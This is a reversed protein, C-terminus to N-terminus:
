AQIELFEGKSQQSGLVSGIFTSPSDSLTQLLFGIEANPKLFASLLEGLKRNSAEMQDETQSEKISRVAEEVQNLVSAPNRKEENAIEDVTSGGLLSNLIQDKVEQAARAGLDPRLLGVVSTSIQETLGALNQVMAPDALEAIARNFIGNGDDRGTRNQVTGHLEERLVNQFQDPSSFPGQATTAAFAERYLAQAATESIGLEGSLRTVAGTEITDLMENSVGYPSLLSGNLGYAAASNALFSADDTSFGVGKLENLVSDRFERQTEFSDGARNIAGELVTQLLNRSTSIGSEDAALQAKLESLEGDFMLSRNMASSLMTEALTTDTEFLNNTISNAANSPDASLTFAASLFNIGLDARILSAATNALQQAQPQELGADRLANVIESRLASFSTDSGRQIVNNITDNILGGAAASSFASNLVLQDTLNQKLALISFPNDLVDRLDSGATLAVLAQSVPIGAANAFLQAVLEPMGITRGFHAMAVSLLSLNMTASVANTFAAMAGLSLDGFTQEMKTARSLSITADVLNALASEILQSDSSSLANQLEEEAQRATEATQQLNLRASLPLSNFEGNVINRGVGGDVVGLVQNTLALSLGIGVAPSSAALHGIASAIYRLSPLPTLLSSNQLLQLATFELRSFQRGSIPFSANKAISSFIASSLVLELNKSHLGLSFSALGIGGGFVNVSDLFVERAQEIYSNPVIIDIGQEKFFAKAEDRAAEALDIARNFSAAFAIASLVQPLWIQRLVQTNSSEQIVPEEIQPLPNIDGPDPSAAIPLIFTSAPPSFVTPLSTRLQDEYTLYSAVNANPVEAESLLPEPPLGLQARQQNVSILHVNASFILANYDIIANRYQDLAAQLDPRAAVYDNYEDIQTNIFALAAVSDGGFQNDALAQFAVPDNYFFIWTNIDQVQPADNTVTEALLNEFDAKATLLQAYANEIEIGAERLPGNWTEVLSILFDYVATAEDAAKAGLLHFEKTIDSDLIEAETLNERLGTIAESILESLEILSIRGPQLEIGRQSQLQLFDPPLGEDEILRDGPVQNLQTTQNQPQFGPGSLPFFPLDGPGIQNIETM